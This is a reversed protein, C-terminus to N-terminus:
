ITLVHYHVRTFNVAVAKVHTFVGATKSTALVFTSITFFPLNPTLFIAEDQTGLESWVKLVTIIDM